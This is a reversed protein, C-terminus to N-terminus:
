DYFRLMMKPQLGRSVWRRLLIIGLPPIFLYTTVPARHGDYILIRYNNLLLFIYANLMRIYHSIKFTIFIITTYDFRASFITHGCSSIDTGCTSIVLDSQPYLQLTIPRRSMIRQVRPRIWAAHQLWNNLCIRIIYKVCERSRVGSSQGSVLFPGNSM